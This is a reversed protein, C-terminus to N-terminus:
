KGLIGLAILINFILAIFFTVDKIFAKISDMYETAKKIEELLKDFKEM